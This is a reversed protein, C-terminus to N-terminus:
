RSRPWRSEDRNPAADNEGAALEDADNEGAAVEDDAALCGKCTSFMIVIM